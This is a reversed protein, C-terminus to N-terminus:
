LVAEFLDKKSNFHHYLAGRTVGAVHVVEELATNAYGKEAFLEKAIQILKDNTKKGAIIKKNEKKM